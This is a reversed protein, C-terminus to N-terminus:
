VYLKIMVAILSLNFPFGHIHQLVGRKVRRCYINLKWSQRDSEKRETCAKIRIKTGEQSM